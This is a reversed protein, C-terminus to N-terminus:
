KLKNYEEVLFESVDEILHVEITKRLLLENYTADGTTFLESQKIIVIKNILNLVKNRFNDNNSILLSNYNDFRKLCGLNVENYMNFNLIELEKKTIYKKDRYQRIPNSDTYLTGDDTYELYCMRVSAGLSNLIEEQKQEMIQADQKEIHDYGLTHLLGHCLLFCVERRLSHNYEKAQEEARALCIYIDSITLTNDELNINFKYDELNLTEGVKLDIYPYTLVDTVKDISRTEKNLKQIQKETVFNLNVQVTEPLNFVSAVKNYVQKLDENFETRKNFNIM